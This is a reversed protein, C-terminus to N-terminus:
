AGREEGGDTPTEKKTSHVLTADGAVVGAAENFGEFILGCVDTEIGVRAFFGMMPWLIQLLEIEQTETLAMDALDARYEEPDFVPAGPRVPVQNAAREPLRPCNTSTM